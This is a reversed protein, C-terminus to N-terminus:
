CGDRVRAPSCRFLGQPSALCQQVVPHHQRSLRLRHFRDLQLEWTLETHALANIRNNSFNQGAPTVVDGAERGLHAFVVFVVEVAARVAAGALMKVAINIERQDGQGRNRGRDKQHSKAHDEMEIGPVSEPQFHGREHSERKGGQDPQANGHGRRRGHRHDIGGFQTCAADVVAQRASIRSRRGSSNRRFIVPEYSRISARADRGHQGLRARRRKTGM